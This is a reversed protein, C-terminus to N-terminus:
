GKLRAEFLAKLKIPVVKMRITNAKYNGSPHAELHKIMKDFRAKNSEAVEQAVSEDNWYGAGCVNDSVDGGLWIYNGSHTSYAKVLYVTRDIM